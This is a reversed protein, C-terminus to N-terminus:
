KHKHKKGVEASDRHHNRSELILSVNIELLKWLVGGRELVAAVSTVGLTFSSPSSRM